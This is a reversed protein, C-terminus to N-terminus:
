QKVAHGKARQSKGAKVDWRYVGAPWTAAEPVQISQAGANLAVERYFVRRGFADYFIIRTNAASQLNMDLAFVDTSPNPRCITQLTNGTVVAVRQLPETAPNAQLRYSLGDNAWGLNELLADDYWILGSLDRTDRKARFTIYFLCQGPRVVDDEDGPNSMWLARIIGKSVKTLGFNEDNIGQLDGKSVGIFELSREDFHMGMQWATLAADGLAYIPITQYENSKLSNIPMTVEFNSPAPKPATCEDCIFEPGDNDTSAVVVHGTKIAVFDADTTPLIQGSLSEPFAVQFPNIPNPFIYSKPVFRWSKSYNSPWDNNPDGNDYIGLILKRLAVIDATTISNSHNADAAIMYYPSAIPEIGLIHKQISVLDNTTVGDLRYDDKSPIITWEKHDACVCRSYPGCSTRLNYPCAPPDDDPFIELAVDPVYCHWETAVHGSLENTCYPFTSATVAPYCLETNGHPLIAARRTWVDQICGSPADFEVVMYSNSSWTIPVTSNLEVINPATVTVACGSPCTMNDLYASTISVGADMIFDFRLHMEDFVDEQGALSVYVKLDSCNNSFGGASSEVKLTYDLCPPDGIVACHTSPVGIAPKDCGGGTTTVRGATLDGSMAYGGTFLEPESKVNLLQSNGLITVNEYVFRMSYGEDNPLEAYQVEPTPQGAGPQMTPKQALKSDTQVIVAFDLYEVAGGASTIDVAFNAEEEVCNSTGFSLTFNSNTTSPAPYISPFGVGNLSFNAHDCSELNADVYFFNSLYAGNEEGPFFDVVLTFLVESVYNTFTVVPLVEGPEGIYDTSLDLSASNDQEDAVIQFLQGNIAGAVIGSGCAETADVNIKTLGGDAVTAAATITLHNYLLDFNGNNYAGSTSSPNVMLRVQYLARLCTPQECCTPCSTPIIIADIVVRFEGCAVNFDPLLPNGVQAMSTQSLGIFYLAFLFAEFLPHKSKSSVSRCSNTAGGGNKVFYFKTFCSLNTKFHSFKFTFVM